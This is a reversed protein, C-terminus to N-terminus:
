LVLFVLSTTFSMLLYSLIVIIFYYSSRLFFEILKITQSFLVTRSFELSYAFDYMKIKSIVYIYM